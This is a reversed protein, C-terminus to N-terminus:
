KFVIETRVPYLSADSSTLINYANKESKMVLGNRQLDGSRNAAYLKVPETIDFSIEGKEKVQCSSIYKGSEPKTNWNVTLSCWDEEVDFLM